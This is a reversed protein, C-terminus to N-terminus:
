GLMFHFHIFRTPSSPRHPIGGTGVGGDIAPSSSSSTDASPHLGHGHGHGLMMGSGGSGSSSSSTMSGAIVLSTHAHAHMTTPISGLAGGGGGGACRGGGRGGGAARAGMLQESLLGLLEKRSDLAARYAAPLLIPSGEPYSQHESPQPVAVYRFKQPIAIANILLPSTATLSSLSLPIYRIAIEPPHSQTTPTTLAHLRIILHLIILPSPPLALALCM